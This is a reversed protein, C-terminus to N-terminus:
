YLQKISQSKIKLRNNLWSLLLNRIFSTSHTGLKLSPLSLDTISSIELLILLISPTARRSTSEPISVFLVTIVMTPSGLDIDIAANSAILAAQSRISM